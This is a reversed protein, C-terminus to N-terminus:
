THIYIDIIKTIKTWVPLCMIDQNGLWPEFGWGWCHFGPSKLEPGNPFDQFKIRQLATSSPITVETGRDSPESNTHFM